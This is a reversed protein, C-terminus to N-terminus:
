IRVPRPQSVAAASRLANPNVAFRKERETKTGSDPLALMRRLILAARGGVAGDLEVIEEATPGDLVSLPVPLVLASSHYKYNNAPDIGSPLGYSGTIQGSALSLELRVPFYGDLASTPATDTTLVILIRTFDAYFNNLTVTVGHATVSQGLHTFTSSMNSGFFVTKAHCIPSAVEGPTTNQTQGHSRFLVFGGSVFLSLLVVIIVSSFLSRREPLRSAPPITPQMIPGKMPAAHPMLARHLAARAAIAAVPTDAPSPVTSVAKALQQWQRLEQQCDECTLLHADVQARALPDLTGNVYWPLMAHVVLSSEDSM